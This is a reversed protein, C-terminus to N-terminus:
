APRALVYLQFAYSSRRLIHHACRRLIEHPSLLRRVYPQVGGLEVVEFGANELVTRLSKPTYYFVHEWPILGIPKGLATAILVKAPNVAGSPVSIFLFGRTPRLQSGIEALLSNPERIHEFVDWLTVLDISPISALQDLYARMSIAKRVAHHRTRAETAHAESADFGYTTM